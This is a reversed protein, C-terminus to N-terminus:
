KILKTDPHQAYWGFWYARHAPVRPLRLTTDFAARLHDEEAVWLRGAADVIRGGSDTRSFRHSGAQYARNAGAATTIIVLHQNGADVHYVRERHLLDAAIAVPESAGTPSAPRLVLVEAKNALRSDTKSVRFMLADTAFYQRYAAGESYDRTFGTNLSLVTTDPHARRWEAWTTTVVPLVSLRLASGVLPGIVPTGDLSSWLSKTEADFMLKNSQYLLGSTGFTRVTGGVESDYPIVTGCLTCYVITLERAGFRDRALEHWALIRKPYALAVGDVYVGFVINDGELYGADAATVHRPYELPPIGNVAVGGWDVEDLRISSQLPVRFFEQFRPDLQGYLRGKFTGYGPHPDYPLSWVWARWRTVDPGFQQGTRDELFRVLRSIRNWAAPTGVSTRRM